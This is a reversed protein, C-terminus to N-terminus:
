LDTRGGAINLWGAWPASHDFLDQFALDDDADICVVEVVDCHAHVM